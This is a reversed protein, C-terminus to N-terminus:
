IIRYGMYWVGWGLPVVFALLAAAPAMELVCWVWMTGISPARKMVAYYGGENTLRMLHVGLYTALPLFVLTKGPSGFMVQVVGGEKGERQAKAKSSSKKRGEGFSPFFFAGPFSIIHGHALHICLTLVPFAVFVSERLLAAVPVFQAYQHAALYALTLHLTTLPFSLLLTDILPPLGEKEDGDDDDGDDDEHKKEKPSFQSVNGDRSVQIFQTETANM